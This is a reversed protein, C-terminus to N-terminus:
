YKSLVNVIKRYVYWPFYQNVYCSFWSLGTAWLTYVCLKILYLFAYYSKNATVLLWLGSFILLFWKFLAFTPFFRQIRIKIFKITYYIRCWILRRVIVSGLGCILFLIVIVVWYFCKKSTRHIGIKNKSSSLM